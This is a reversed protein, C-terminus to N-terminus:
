KDKKINSNNGLLKYILKNHTDLSKKFDILIQAINEGEENTFFHNILQAIGDSEILDDECDSGSENCVEDESDDTESENLLKISNDKSENM